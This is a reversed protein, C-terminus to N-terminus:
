IQGLIAVAGAACIARGHEALWLGLSDANELRPAYEALFPPLREGRAPSLLLFWADSDDIYVASEGAFGGAALRRCLAFLVEAECLRYVATDPMAEGSGGTYAARHGHGAMPEEGYLRNLLAREGDDTHREFVSDSGTGSERGAAADEDPMEDLAQLEDIDERGLADLFDEDTAGLKTVFIECGGGRSTYLQVFLREGTTDFGIRERADDFIHRFARRTSAGATTIREAPLDYHCMDTQTLMIKLRSEDIIILEM